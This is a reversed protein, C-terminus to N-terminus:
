PEQMVLGIVSLQRGCQARADLNTNEHTARRFSFLTNPNSYTDIGLRDIVQIGIQKLKNFCYGPLDFMYHKAQKSNIFFCSSAKDDEIFKNYLAQDVEYSEQQICPGLATAMHAIDAGLNKMAHLTNDIIGLIAGKWGAHIVAIIKNKTDVVLIPVCDATKVGLLINPLNTILADAQLHSTAQAKDKITIVCASHIQKLIRLENHPFGLSNCVIAQYNIVNESNDVSYGNCYLPQYVSDSIGGLKTFFGHVVDKQKAINPATYSFISNRNEKQEELM